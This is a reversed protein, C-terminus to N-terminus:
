ELDDGLLHGFSQSASDAEELGSGIGNASLWTSITPDFQGGRGLPGVTVRGSNAPHLCQWGAIGVRTSFLFLWRVSARLQASTSLARCGLVSQDLSWAPRGFPTASFKSM